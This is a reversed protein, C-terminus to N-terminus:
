PGSDPYALRQPRRVEGRQAAGVLGLDDRVSSTRGPEVSCTGSSDAVVNLGLRLNDSAIRHALSHGEGRVDISCIERLAQEITDVRLYVADLESAVLQSLTSKGSGPLGSFIYLIPGRFASERM